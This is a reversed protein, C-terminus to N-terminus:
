AERVRIDIGYSRSSTTRFINDLFTYWSRQSSSGLTFLGQDSVIEDITLTSNFMYDGDLCYAVIIGPLSEPWIVTEDFEFWNWGEEPSSPLPTDTNGPILNPQSEAGALFHDFMQYGFSGTSNTVLSGSPVYLGFSEIVYDAGPYRLFQHGIWSAPPSDDHSSLDPIPEGVFISDPPLASWVLQNAIMLRDVTQNAVRGADAPSLDYNPM